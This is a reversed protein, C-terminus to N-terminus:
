TITVALRRDVALTAGDPLAVWGDGAVVGSAVAVSRRRRHDRVLATTEPARAGLEHRACEARGELLTYSVAEGGRRTAVVLRGNSAVLAFGARGPGGAVQEVARASAALRLAATSADLSPDEIRGLERLEALFTAFAAEEWTPGRVASALFGPLEERLRERVAAARELGGSAAFLWQRFRFPQASAELGQGVGLVRSALLCVESEPAAWAEDGAGAGYRREVVQGDQWGGVGVVAGQEFPFRARVRDLECRLLAADSTILALVQSM